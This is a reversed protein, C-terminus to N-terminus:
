TIAVLIILLNHEALEEKRIRKKDKTKGEKYVRRRSKIWDFVFVEVSSTSAIAIFGLPYYDVLFDGTVM